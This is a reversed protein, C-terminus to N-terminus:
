TNELKKEIQNFISTGLNEVIQFKESDVLIEDYLKSFSFSNEISKIEYVNHHFEILFNCSVSFAIPGKRFEKLSYYYQIKNYTNSKLHIKMGYIGAALNSGLSKDEGLLYEAKSKFLSDFESLKNSIQELLPLIIQDLIDLISKPSKTIKVKEDTSNLKQKLLKIKKDLDGPEDLNEGNAAKISIELSWILQQSIFKSFSDLDGSDARNLATLYNKKDASKIIIPPLNNKFLVYNMLLRSIRGNGDDFPHIRVFKYHLMAAIVIPSLEKKEEELRYWNILDTMLAPTEVPSAYHFIEGNQLRVSNPFDKYDGVKIQRRTNQGDETIADKWFPRVLLIQNLHKINQESLSRESDSALEQIFQFAVDSGKMEELERLTHNGKADDFILLLETEAYTITNGELHNTNFNFELRFKKDLLNQNQSSLPQLKKLKSILDDIKRQEEM